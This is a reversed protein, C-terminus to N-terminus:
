PLYGKYLFENIFLNHSFVLCFIIYFLMVINIVGEKLNNVKDHIEQQLIPSKNLYKQCYNLMKLTSFM